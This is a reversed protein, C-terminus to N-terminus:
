RAITRSVSVRRSGDEALRVNPGVVSELRRGFRAQVDAPQERGGPLISSFAVDVEISGSDFLSVDLIADLRGDVVILLGEAFLMDRPTEVDHGLHEHRLEYSLVAGDPLDTTGTVHVANGDLQVQVDLSVPVEVAECGATLAAAWCALAIARVTM